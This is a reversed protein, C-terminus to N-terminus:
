VTAPSQIYLYEFTSPVVAGPTTESSDCSILTTSITIVMIACFTKMKKM